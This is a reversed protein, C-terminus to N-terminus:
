KKPSYDYEHQLQGDQRYVKVKTGKNQAIEKARKVAPEKNDFTSDPRKAKQSIVQWKQDQYSVKIDSKLLKGANKSVDHKDSKQPRKEHSFSNKEDQSANQYWEKAQKTAIPIARDDPYGEQLLANAIDIAKKRVLHDLNKMSAPYDDLNWVM